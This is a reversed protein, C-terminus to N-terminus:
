SSLSSKFGIKRSRLDKETAKSRALWLIRPDWPSDETPTEQFIVGVNSNKNVWILSQSGRRCPIVTFIPRFRVFLTQKNNRVAFFLGKGRDSCNTIKM